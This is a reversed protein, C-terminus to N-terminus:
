CLNDIGTWPIDNMNAWVCKNYDGNSVSNYESDSFDVKTISNNTGISNVNSCVKSGESEEHVWYDPCTDKNYYKTLNSNITIERNKWQTYKFYIYIIIITIFLLIFMFDSYSEGFDKIITNVKM